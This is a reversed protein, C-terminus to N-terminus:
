ASSFDAWWLGLTERAVIITGPNTPGLGANQAYPVFRPFKL